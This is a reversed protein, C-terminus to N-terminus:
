GQYAHDTEVPEPLSALDSSPSNPVKPPVLLLFGVGPHSCVCYGERVYV